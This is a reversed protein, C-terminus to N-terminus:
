LVTPELGRVLSRACSSASSTNRRASSLAARAPRPTRLAPLTLSLCRRADPVPQTIRDGLNAADTTVLDSLKARLDLLQLEADVLQLPLEAPMLRLRM